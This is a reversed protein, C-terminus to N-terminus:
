TNASPTLKPITPYAKSHIGFSHPASDIYSTFLIRYIMLKISYPMVATSTEPKRGTLCPISILDCLSISINGNKHQILKLEVTMQILILKFLTFFVSLKM